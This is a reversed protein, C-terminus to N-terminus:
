TYTHDDELLNRETQSGWGFNHIENLKWKLNSSFTWIHSYTIGDYLMECADVAFFQLYMPVHLIFPLHLSHTEFPGFWLNSCTSSARLAKNIFQRSWFGIFTMCTRSTVLSWESVPDKSCTITIITGYIKWVAINFFPMRHPMTITFTIIVIM